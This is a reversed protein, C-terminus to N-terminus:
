IVQTAYNYLGTPTVIQMTIANPFPSITLSLLAKILTINQPVGLSTRNM